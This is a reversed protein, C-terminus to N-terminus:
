ADPRLERRSRLSLWTAFGMLLAALAGIVLAIAGSQFALIAGRLAALGVFSSGALVLVRNRTGLGVGVIVVAETALVLAYVWNPDATFSQALTPLLLLLAGTVSAVRGLGEPQHVEVDVPLLAGIILQYSGPAIVFAQINDAGLWRVGYVAAIAVFEGAVYWLIRGSAAGPIIPEADRGRVVLMLALSILLGAATITGRGGIAFSGPSGLSVLAAGGAVTLGAVRHLWMGVRRGDSWEAKAIPDAINTAWWPNRATALWPMARWVYALMTYGWALAGFAVLTQWPEWGQQNALSGTALGGTLLAPVLLDPLAEITAVLYAVLAFIGLALTEFAPDNTGQVATIIATVAAAIYPPWLWRLKGFRGAVIGAVAFALSLPLLDHANPNAFAAAVAYLTPATGAWPNPELAAILYAAVAFVLLLAEVHTGDPPTVRAIGFLSAGVALGYLALAWQWGIFRRVAAGAAAAAFTIVLTPPLTPAQSLLTVGALAYGTAFATVWAAREQAAVGYAAAAFAFCLAVQGPVNEAGLAAIAFPSAFVAAIHPAIGWGKDKVQRLALGLAVLMFTLPITAHRDPPTVTAWLGLLAPFVMVWPENELLAAVVALVMQALLLWTAITGGPLQNGQLRAVSVLTAWAAVVYPAAVWARGMLRRIALAALAPVFALAFLIGDNATSTGLPLVALFGFFGAAVGGLIPSNERRGAVLAAAAFLALMLTAHGHYPNSTVFVLATVYLANGLAVVYLPAAYGQARGMWGLGLATGWLALAFIAESVAFVLLSALINPHRGANQILIALVASHFAYSAFFGALLTWWPAGETLAIGLSVAGAVVLTLVLPWNPDGDVLVVVASSTALTLALGELGFRLGTRARNLRALTVAGALEAIGLVALLYASGVHTIGGWTALAIAAQAVTAAVSWDLFDTDGHPVGAPIAAHAARQEIGWLLALPVLGATTLAVAAPAFVLTTGYGYHSFFLYEGLLVALASTLIGTIRAPDALKSPWHLRLPAHLALAAGVLALGSWESPAHVWPILAQLTIALGVWGLYAYTMFGTRWALLLYVVTAYAAGICVMGAVSLGLGRLAFLYYALVVLPTMLAFVGLYAGGVTRLRDRGRFTVGLVGFLAYAATVVLLKFTDGLGPGVEFSLTAILLLFGGLYALIAIAQDAIFASWSFAPGPPPPPTMPPAPARPPAGGGGLWAPVNGVPSSAAPVALSPTTTIAQSAAVDPASAKPASRLALYRTRYDDRLETITQAGHGEAIRRELDQIATYLQGLERVLAPNVPEGCNPCYTTGLPSPQGCRSCILTTASM